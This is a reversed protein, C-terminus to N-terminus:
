SGDYELIHLTYEGKEYKTSIGDTRHLFGKAKGEKNLYVM